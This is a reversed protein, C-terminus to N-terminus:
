IEGKRFQKFWDSEKGIFSTKEGSQILSIEKEIELEILSHAHRLNELDKDMEHHLKALLAEGKMVFANFNKEIDYNKNEENEM